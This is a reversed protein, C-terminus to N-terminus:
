IVNPVHCIVSNLDSCRQGLLSQAVRFACGGADDNGGPPIGITKQSYPEPLLSSIAVFTSLKSAIAPGIDGFGIKIM